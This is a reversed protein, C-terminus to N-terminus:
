ADTADVVEGDPPPAEQRPEAKHFGTGDFEWSNDVGHQRALFNMFRQLDAMAKEQTQKYVELELREADTFDKRM